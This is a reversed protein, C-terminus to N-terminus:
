RALLMWRDKQYIIRRYNAVLFSYLEPQSAQFADKPSFIFFDEQAVVVKPPDRKVEELNRRRWDDTDLIGIAYGNLLGSMPRDAFYYIQCALPVVLIKDQPQTHQQVASLLHIMAQDSGSRLGQRLQQYKPVPNRMLPELDVSPCLFDAMIVLALVGCYFGVFLRSITRGWKSGHFLLRGKWLESLLLSGGVLAPPLIQKLHIMGIRYFGQPLIGLGLVGAAIMLGYKSGPQEPNDFLRRLGCLICLIYTGLILGFFLFTSSQSSLPHYLDFRPFPLSWEKASGIGGVITANLYDRTTGGRWWLALIWATFPVAFGLLFKPPHSVFCRRDSSLWCCGLVCVSYSCLTAVGLDLRYLGGIGALFGALYHWREKQSNPSNRWEHFCYLVVLPFFWYYWKHFRALLFCGLLPAVWGALASVSARCLYHVILLSSAYGLSCILIEPILTDSVRLGFASTLGVLPGYSFFLDVFPFRGLVIQKGLSLQYGPDPANLYRGLGPACWLLLLFFFVLVSM